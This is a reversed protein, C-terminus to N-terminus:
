GRSKLPHNFKWGSDFILSWNSLVVPAKEPSANPIAISNRILLQAQSPLFLQRSREIRRAFRRWGDSHHRMAKIRLFNRVKKEFGGELIAL